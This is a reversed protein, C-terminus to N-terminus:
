HIGLYRLFVLENYELVFLFLSVGYMVLGINRSFCLFYLVSIAPVM